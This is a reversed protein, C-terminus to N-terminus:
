PIELKEWSIGSDRSCYIGRNNLCYFEDKINPNSKLISIITGKSEFIGETILEWKEDVDETSRRYLFSEPNKRDHAKWPNSAASVVKNQPDNSNVAISMLYTNDELGKKFIDQDGQWVETRPAFSDDSYECM